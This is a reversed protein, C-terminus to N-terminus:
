DHCLCDDHGQGWHDYFIEECNCDDDGCHECYNVFLMEIAVVEKEKNLFVTALYSGDGSWTGTCIGFANLHIQNLSSSSLYTYFPHHEEWNLLKALTQVDDEPMPADQYFRDKLCLAVQGSDVPIRYSIATEYRHTSLHKWTWSKMRGNEENFDVRFTGPKVNLCLVGYPNSIVSATSLDAEQILAKLGEEYCPDALVFQDREKVELYDNITYDRQKFAQNLSYSM